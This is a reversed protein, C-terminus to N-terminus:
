KALQAKPGALKRAAGILELFEQRHESKHNGVADEAMAQLGRWTLTGRHKSNRLLLGFGAVSTAFRMDQSAQAFAGRKPSINHTLLESKQSDPRKYRLKVTAMPQNGKGAKPEVEYLATVSHGPGLEGADVKDNDFDEKALMRNEYGILRYSKVAASNFEVQIKVDKAITVLTSGGEDVLVKQAERASDIYSYNGNGKDAIQEMTADKLNGRGFGLVSLYVGSKRKEEVLEILADKNTMGVNFDGDSALIVRNIANPDFNQEALKYALQIGQGGNTSGGSKLKDLAGMIADQNAGSTPLLVAGAAGAYVVISVHDEEGLTKTLMKFGERLLPLKDANSMSGSVDILFVINRQPLESNDIRQGQLGIRLLEHKPNWPATTTESHVAFPVDKAPDAYDYSFYNIFEEVRVASTPPMHGSILFRRTNSYSATDVDISFTSFAQKSPAHFSNENTAAYDETLATTPSPAPMSSANAAIASRGTPAYSREAMPAESEGAYTMDDSSTAAQPAGSAHMAGLKNSQTSGGCSASVLLTSLLLVHRTKNRMGVYRRSQPRRVGPDFSVRLCAIHAIM